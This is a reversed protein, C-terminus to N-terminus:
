SEEVMEVSSAGRFEALREAEGEISSRTGQPLDAWPQLRVVLKKGAKRPRWAAVVEGGSLVAGPRGLTPWLEKRRQVDGVLMERDRVQLYPDFNGLLRTSTAVGEAELAEQDGALIWREEPGEPGEVAVQVADSPWRAKVERVPADLYAAVHTPKAPGFFHLYSRITDLRDPYDTALGTSAPRLVPPSTGPELELGARVAALRFTMEYPHTTNCSRCFRLYPAPLVETLAGSVEGKVMPETVIERMRAAVHDLAELASIGAERLPKSADFIRKAADAESFPAVAAAVQALDVRRYAHPAGRLSWILAIDDSVTGKGGRIALAWGAGESGTDQVGLDLIEIENVPRPVTPGLGHVTARHAM